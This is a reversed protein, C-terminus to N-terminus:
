TNKALLGKLQLIRRVKKPSISLRAAVRSVRRGEREWVKPILIAAFDDSIQQFTKGGVLGESWEQLTTEIRSKKLVRARLEQFDEWLNDEGEPRVLAGASDCCRRAAEVDDFFDNALTIGQWVYARALLRTNQTRLALDVADHALEGARQAHLAPPSASEIQEDYRANEIRCGLLRARAMLTYDSKEQGLRYGAEAEVGALDLDGADLLLFGCHVHVGGLGHHQGSESFIRSAENLDAMAEARLKEMRMRAQATAPLVGGRAGARKRRAAERDVTKALGAAILRKVFALNSLTRALNPHSSDQRRYDCIAKEFHGLARDYNGQRRAIRGYASQINGQSVADDTQSLVMEARGLIELAEKMRGKQFVLWSELVGVVAAVCECGIERALRGARVTYDLADDYRGQHRLSRGTWFNAIALLERDPFEGEVSRVFEFHPIAQEFEEERMAALGLAMRLHVYDNLRLRPRRSADFGALLRDLLGHDAFGIDVWQAFYGLLTAAGDETPDLSELEARRAELVALGDGIRRNL